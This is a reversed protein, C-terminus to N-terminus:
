MRDIGCSIIAGGENSSVELSGLKRTGWILAGRPDYVFMENSEFASRAENWIVVVQRVLWQVGSAQGKKSM